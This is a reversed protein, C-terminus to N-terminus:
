PESENLKLPHKFSGVLVSTSVLPVEPPPPHAPTQNSEKTPVDPDSQLPAAEHVDSSEHPLCKTKKRRFCRKLFNLLGM